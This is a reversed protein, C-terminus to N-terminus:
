SIFPLRGGVKDLIEVQNFKTRCIPCSNAQPLWQKLCADHYAHGCPLLAIGLSLGERDPDPPLDPFGLFSEVCVPCDDQTLNVLLKDLYTPLSM